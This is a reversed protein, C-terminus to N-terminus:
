ASASAADEKCEEENGGSGAQATYTGDEEAAASARKPANNGWFGNIQEPVDFNDVDINWILGKYTFPPFQYGEEATTTALVGLFNVTGDDNRRIQCGELLRGSPGGIVDHKKIKWDNAM